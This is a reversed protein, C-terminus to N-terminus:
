EAAPPARVSRLRFLHYESTLHFPLTRAPSTLTGHQEFVQVILGSDLSDDSQDAASEGNVEDSVVICLCCVEPEDAPSHDHDDHHFHAAAFAQLSVFGHIVLLCLIRWIYTTMFEV